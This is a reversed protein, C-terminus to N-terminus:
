SSQRMEHGAPPAAAERRTLRRSRIAAPIAAATVVAAVGVGAAIGFGLRFGTMSPVSGDGFPQNTRVLVTGIVASSTSTGIARMLANVGNAGATESPPVTEMILVPMAAYALSIGSAIVTTALIVQWVNDMLGIGIAYGCTAVASGCVLSAKPGRAASLRAGATSAAMMVIGSPIMCLGAAVVSLGLGYGTAEPLQLLQPSVLSQAFLLFGVMVSAINTLLVQSNANTRLDVLPEATRLELVSWGVLLLVAAVFLGLTVVSGWGWDDGKSVALLLCVLGATLGVAGPLDFRGSRHDSSAPVFRRVLVIAVAGLCGSFVFLARWDLYQVIASSAPLGFSAGVGLSTSMLATGSGLREAPLADRMVSIGLPIVGLSCGQLARGAMVPVLSADLLAILSGAVLLGLSGLLVRRKGYLDGLRGAIPTSVAGTLLTATIVWSADSASTRLLSPLTPLLPVMLTYVFAVIVGSYALAYVVARDHRLAPGSESTRAM